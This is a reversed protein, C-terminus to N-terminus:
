ILAAGAGAQIAMRVFGKRKSLFISEKAPDGTLTLFIGPVDAFPNRIPRYM